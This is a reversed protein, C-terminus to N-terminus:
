TLGRPKTMQWAESDSSFLLLSALHAKTQNFFIFKSYAKQALTVRESKFVKQVRHKEGKGRIKTINVCVPTLFPAVWGMANAGPSCFPKTEREEGNRPIMRWTWGTWKKLTQSFLRAAEWTLGPPMFLVMQGEAAQTAMEQIDLTVSVPASLVKLLRAAWGCLQLAFHVTIFNNKWRGKDGPWQIGPKAVRVKSLIAM